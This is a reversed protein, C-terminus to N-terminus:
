APSINNSNRRLNLLRMSSKNINIKCRFLGRIISIVLSCLYHIFISIEGLIACIISIIARIVDFVLYIKPLNSYLIRYNIYYMIRIFLIFPLFIIIRIFLLLIHLPLIFIELFSYDEDINDNTKDCIRTYYYITLMIIMFNYIHGYTICRIIPVDNFKLDCYDGDYTLQLGYYISSDRHIPESQVQQLDIHSNGAGISILKFPKRCLPCLPNIDAVRKICDFCFIHGCLLSTPKKYISICISCENHAQESM